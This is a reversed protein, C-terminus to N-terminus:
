SVSDSTSGALAPKTMSWHSHLIRWGAHTRGYVETTNWCGADSVFNFTLLAMDGRVSVRPNRLEFHLLRIQGRLGDYLARLADIGDLRAELFPDFYVVDGDCIELFGDPDGNAWRQLAQREMALIAREDNCVVAPTSM